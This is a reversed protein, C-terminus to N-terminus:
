SASPEGPRAASRPGRPIRAASRPARSEDGTKWAHLGPMTTWVDKENPNRRDALRSRALLM